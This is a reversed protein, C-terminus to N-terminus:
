GSPTGAVGLDSTVGAKSVLGNLWWWYVRPLASPPPEVFGRALLDSEPEGARLGSAGATLALLTVIVRTLSVRGHRGM